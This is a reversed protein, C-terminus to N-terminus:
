SSSRKNQGSRDNNLMRVMGANQVSRKWFIVLCFKGLLKKRDIKLVKPM